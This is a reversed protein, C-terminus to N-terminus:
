SKRTLAAKINSFNAVLCGGVVFAAALGSLPSVSTHGTVVFLFTSFLPIFYSLSALLNVSGRKMAYDWFFYSINIFSLVAVAWWVIGTSPMSEDFVFSLAFSLASVILFIPCMFGAPFVVKRTAVSYVAWMAAASAALAYGTLYQPDFQAGKDTLLIVTGVFGMLVGIIQLIQLKQKNYLASFGMLFMPWLYNLTNVELPPAIKFALFLAVTYGGIGGVGVFYALPKQKWYSRWDEKHLIQWTLLILFGGLSIIGSLLLPPIDGAIVVSLTYSSWLIIAIIGALNGNM